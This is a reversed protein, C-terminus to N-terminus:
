SFTRIHGTMSALTPDRQDLQQEDDTCNSHESGHHKETDATFVTAVLIDRHDLCVVDLESLGRTACGVDEAVAVVVAHAHADCGLTADCGGLVGGALLLLDHVFVWELESGCPAPVAELAPELELQVEPPYEYPM